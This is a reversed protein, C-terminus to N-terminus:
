VLGLAERVQQENEVLSITKGSAMSLSTYEGKPKIFEIQNAFVFIPKRSGYSTFEIVEKM